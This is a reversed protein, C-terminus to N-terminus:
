FIKGLAFKTGIGAAAGLISGMPDNAQQANYRQVDIGYKQVGLQGVNNWGSMSGGYAGGLSQGMMNYNSMPLQGAALAQNGATLAIGTSSAQNGPLGTGLGIADMRKAWGLQEAATRARTAAAAGLAAQQVNNQNNMGAFAGSTPNVGYAAMQMANNKRAQEMQTNVDGMALGAQRQFESETNFKNADEIAKDQMPYFKENMRQWYADAIKDNKAQSEKAVAWQEDSRSEQKNAQEQMAPWVKAKWENLMEESLDAMKMQAKGINPDPTPASGGKGGELTAPRSFGFGRKTFAREPLLGEHVEYVRSM